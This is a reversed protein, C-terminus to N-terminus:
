RWSGKSEPMLSCAGSWFALLVSEILLQTILRSRSAGVSSRIAMEKERATARALLMNAVNSCAILLLLAVAAAITYLTKRFQGVLSDVWSIIQVTFNRPYNKPYVKALQRSIVEIDARARELTVGPKLKAQFNWYERSSQPDARNMTKAMWLDAGLKTFRQPMIGVLMTPTGNLVFAKGVISADRNFRKIWLKYSM